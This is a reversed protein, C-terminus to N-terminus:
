WGMHIQQEAMIRDSEQIMALRDSYFVSRIEDSYGVFVYPLRTHIVGLIEEADQMTHVSITHGTGDRMYLQIAYTEGTKIFYTRHETRNMYAWLLEKSEVFLTNHNEPVMIYEQSIRFENVPLVSYYFHEINHLTREYDGSKKCYQIIMKEYNGKIMKVLTYFIAIMICLIIGGFIYYTLYEQTGLCDVNLTYPLFVEEGGWDLQEYYEKYYKLEMGEMKTITGKVHYSGEVNEREGMLYEQCVAMFQDFDAFYKKKTQMGIYSKEGVPILYYKMDPNSESGEEGYAAYCGIIFQIDGEARMEGIENDAIGNLSVPKQFLYSLGFVWLVAMIIAIAIVCGLIVMIAHKRSKKRLEQLM